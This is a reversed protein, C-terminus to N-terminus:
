ADITENPRSKKGLLEPWKMMGTVIGFLGVGFLPAAIPLYGAITMSLSPQSAFHRTEIMFNRQVVVAYLFYGGVLVLWVGAIFRKWLAVMCAFLPTTLVFTAAWIEPPSDNAGVVFMWGPYMLWGMLGGLIGLGFVAFGIARRKESATM